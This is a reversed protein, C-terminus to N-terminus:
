VPPYKTVRVANGSGDCSCSDSHISCFHPTADFRMAFRPVHNNHTAAGGASSSRNISGRAAVVNQQEFLTIEAFASGTAAGLQCVAANAIQLLAIDPQNHFRELLASQKQLVRMM